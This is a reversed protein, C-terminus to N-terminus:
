TVTFLEWSDPLGKLTHTGRSQFEIGSGAVLDKVTRSVLVEGAGAVDGVRAAIHVSIGGIDDGIIEIEGCHLGVSVPLHIAATADRIAIAGRIAAAPGDFTALFGDGLTKVENGGFRALEARVVRHHRDLLDRWHTDGADAVRETSGVIDSFLVTALRREPVSVTRSGTLFEEIEDLFMEPHQFFPVHDCGPVEVIRAGEIHEALYRGSRVNVLRDGLRHEVLTPVRVAPLVARVDTDYFMAAVSALMGPTISMRELRGYFAVVEADDAMSPASVDIAVGRGWAPQLLEVGAEIFAEVEPLWPHDDAYTTRAMTGHLVLAQTREPHTAAFLIATPGGESLGCLAARSSGAADMVAALDEVRTELDPATEVTFPDSLGTGRRDFFIVRAFSGLREWYRRAAPLDWFLEVHSVFGPILVLDLDCDGWVQYAIHVDGNRAYRTEPTVSRCVVVVERV